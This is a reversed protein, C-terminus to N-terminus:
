MRSWYMKLFKFISASFFVKKPYLVQHSAVAELKAIKQKTDWRFLRQGNLYSDFQSQKQVFASQYIEKTIENFFKMRPTKAELKLYKEWPEKKSFNTAPTMVFKGRVLSLETLFVAFLMKLIIPLVKGVQLLPSPPPPTPIVHFHHPHLM